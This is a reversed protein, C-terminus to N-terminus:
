IASFSNMGHGESLLLLLTITTLKGDYFMARYQLITNEITRNFMAMSIEHTKGDYITLLVM